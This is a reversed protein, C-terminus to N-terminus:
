FDWEDMLGGAHMSPTHVSTPTFAATNPLLSEVSAALRIRELKEPVGWKDGELGMLLMKQEFSRNIKSLTAHSDLEDDPILGRDDAGSGITARKFLPESDSGPTPPVTTDIISQGLKKVGFVGMFLSTSRSRGQPQIQFSLSAIIMSIVLVVTFYRSSFM